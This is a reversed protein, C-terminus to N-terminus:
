MSSGRTRDDDQYGALRVAEDIAEMVRATATQQVMHGTDAVLKFTSSRIVRHLRASQTAEVIRDGEGAVIVVPMTLSGYRWRLAFAGPIM